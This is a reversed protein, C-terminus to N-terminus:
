PGWSSAAPGASRHAAMQETTEVPGNVFTPFFLTSTLFEDLRRPAIDRSRRDVVYAVCRLWWVNTAFAWFEAMDSTNGLLIDDPLLAPYALLAGLLLWALSTGLRGPVREVVGYLCLSFALAAMALTTSGLLGISALSAGVLIWSRIRYPFAAASIVVAALLAGYLAFHAFLSHRTEWAGVLLDAGEWRLWSVLAAPDTLIELGSM